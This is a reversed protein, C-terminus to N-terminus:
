PSAGFRNDTMLEADVQWTDDFIGEVLVKRDRPGGSASEVLRYDPMRRGQAFRGMGTDALSSCLLVYRDPALPNPYIMRMAVDGKYRKGAFEIAGETFSVPMSEVMRSVQSNTRDTGFLILNYAKMDDATVESDAKIPIEADIRGGTRGMIQRRAAFADRKDAERGTGYVFMFPSSM